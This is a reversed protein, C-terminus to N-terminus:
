KDKNFLEDYPVKEALGVVIQHVIMGLARYGPQALDEVILLFNENLFNNIADGTVFLCVCKHFCCLETAAIDAVYDNNLRVYGATNKV